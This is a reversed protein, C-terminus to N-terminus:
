HIFAAGIVFDADEDRYSLIHLTDLMGNYITEYHRVAHGILGAYVLLWSRWKAFGRKFNKNM